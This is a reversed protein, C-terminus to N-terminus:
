GAARSARGPSGAASRVCAEYRAQVQQELRTDSRRRALQALRHFHREFPPVGAVLSEAESADILKFLLLEAEDDDGQILLEDVTTVWETHHRGIHEGPADVRNLDRDACYACREGYGVVIGCRRCRSVTAYGDPLSHQGSLPFGSRHIAM